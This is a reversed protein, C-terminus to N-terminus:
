IPRVLSPAAAFFVKKKLDHLNFLCRDSRFSVFDRISTHVTLAITSRDSSFLASLKSQFTTAPKSRPVSACACLFNCISSRSNRYQQARDEQDGGPIGEPQPVRSALLSTSWEVFATNDMFQLGSRLVLLVARGSRSCGGPVMRPSSLFPERNGALNHVASIRETRLRGKLCRAQRHQVSGSIEPSATIPLSFLSDNEPIDKIM